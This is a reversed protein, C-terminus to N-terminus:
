FIVRRRRAGWQGPVAGFRGAAPRGCKKCAGNQDLRYDGLQYWDREILLAGCGACYTSQSELDHVNGSYVHKIGASLAQRYARLVTELRTAPHQSFKFDPHFASLHLPTEPGLNEACWDCMRAIEDPADNEGEILLVTVELWVETERKIYRLTELVPDLHAFCLKRYFRETFAKLDVNAADMVSFFAARAPDSIYGATVAVSKIGHERNARACDIAYEAFIIPENYTFAVSACGAEVAAEAVQEPAAWQNLLDTQRAKSIDWNQCFRCGLNCGAAGFSLISSGPYFHNLPKKEIPDICFGSARGYSTMVMRGGRAERIFCFGRQGDSLTCGRPCLDCRLRGDAIKHWWDAAVVGPEIIERSNDANNTVRNSEM